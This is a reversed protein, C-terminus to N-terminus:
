VAKTRVDDDPIHRRIHNALVAVAADNHSEWPVVLDAVARSPEVFRAHMDRVTTRYQDAIDDVSRGRENVDRLVRRLLRLDAPTDVYVKLDLRARVEPLAFVLIGEVLLVARPDIVTTTPKRAHRTFDYEPRDIPQGTRLSDIHRVFLDNDLADPHDWNPVPERVSAPMDARNRYYADHPLHTMHGAVDLQLLRQVLTSKGSGSGGAIGITFM